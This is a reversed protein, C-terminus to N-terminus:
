LTQHMKQHLKWVHVHKIPCDRVYHGTQNCYYCLVPLGTGNRPLQNNSPHRFTRSNRGPPQTWYPESNRQTLVALQQQIDALTEKLASLEKPVKKNDVRGDNRITPLKGPGRITLASGKNMYDSSNDSIVQLKRSGRHVKRRVEQFNIVEDVAEDINKPDKAFEVSYSAKSDALGELFKRVLDEDRMQNHRKPHAKDYLTKLENAYAEITENCKQRRTTFLAAYKKPNEASKFRNNLENCLKEYNNRDKPRLQDFVFNGVEGQLRPILEDLKEEESWGWRQAIDTFRAFWVKWTEKGNFPPLNPKKSRYDSLTRNRYVSDENDSALYELNSSSEDSIIKSSTNSKTKIHKNSYGLGRKNPHKIESRITQVAEDLQNKISSSMEKNQSMIDEMATKRAKHQEDVQEVWLKFVQQIIIKLEQHSIEKNCALLTSLNDEQHDLIKTIVAENDARIAKLEDCTKDYFKQAQAGFIKAVKEMGNIIANEVREEYKLGKEADASTVAKTTDSEDTTKDRDSQKPYNCRRSKEMSDELDDSSYDSRYPTGVHATRSRPM